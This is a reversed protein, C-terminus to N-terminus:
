FQMVEILAHSSMPLSIEAGDNLTWYFRMIKKMCPKVRFIKNNRFFQLKFFIM